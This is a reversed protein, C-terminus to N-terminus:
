RNKIEHFIGRREPWEQMRFALYHSVDPLTVDGFKKKGVIGGDETGPMQYGNELFREGFTNLRPERTHCVTCNVNYKRAFAPIAQADPPVVGTSVMMMCTIPIGYVILTTITRLSTMKGALM